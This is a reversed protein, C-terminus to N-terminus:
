RLCREVIRKAFPEDLELHKLLQEHVLSGIVQEVDPSALCDRTAGAFRPDPHKLSIVATLGRLAARKAIKTRRNKLWHHSKAYENITHTLSACFAKLHTGGDPNPRSNTFCLLRQQPINFYQLVIHVLIKGDGGRITSPESISKERDAAPVALFGPLGDQYQIVERSDGTRADAFTFRLPTHVFALLQLLPRIKEAKFETTDRFIEPDPKFTIHTGTIKKSKLEGILKLKQTTKGREFGIAHIKGDRLVEAKFWESVANVCKAGVGPTGGSYEYDQGWKGGTHLVTLAFEVGPLGSDKNIDVPIGRGNDKISISGDVHITVDVHSCHGALFEDVSNDLVETVCQHLGREDIGGIYMGPRARVAELGKMTRLDDASYQREVKQIVNESQEESM